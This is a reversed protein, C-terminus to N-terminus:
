FAATRQSPLPADVGGGATGARRSIERNIDREFVRAHNCHMSEARLIERSMNKPKPEQGRSEREDLADVAM